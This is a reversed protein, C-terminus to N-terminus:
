GIRICNDDKIRVDIRNEDPIHNARRIYSLMAKLANYGTIGTVECVDKVPMTKGVEDFINLLMDAKGPKRLTRM